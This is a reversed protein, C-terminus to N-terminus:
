RILNIAGKKIEKKQDFMEIEVVYVYVGSPQAVGRVTGDWGNSQRSTWILEGWQNFINMSYEKYTGFIKLQDNKGDGNPTFSNPIFIEMISTTKGTFSASVIDLCSSGGLAKVTLIVSTNPTLNSVLTSLGSSGSTPIIFPGNNISVQYGLASAIPTWKFELSYPTADNLSIIPKISSVPTRNIVNITDTLKCNTAYTVTVSYSGTQTVEFIPKTSGDQWIFSNGGNFNKTSLVLSPGCFSTDPGLGYSYGPTNIFNWGTNNSVNSSNRGAFFNAGGLAGNDRLELFDSTVNGSKKSIFSQVGNQSSQIKIPFCGNGLAILEGLVSQTSNAALTYQYGPSLYLTDFINDGLITASNYFNARKMKCGSNLIAFGYTSFSNITDNIFGNIFMNGKVIVSDYKNKGGGLIWLNQQVTLKSFTSNNSEFSAEGSIFEINNYKLPAGKHLFMYSNRSDWGNLIIESGAASFQMNTGDVIWRGIDIQLRSNELIFTRNTTYDSFFQKVQIVKGNSNLKGAILSLQDTTKLSDQLVWEGGSGSFTIPSTLQLNATVIKNGLSTSKFFLEGTANYKMDKILTMSGYVRLGYEGTIAPSFRAGVWSINKCNANEINLTVTQNALNFSNSDFFVNDNAGPICNGPVGGSSLAWRLTDSWNGTGGVWYFNRSITNDFLWGSNNGLDSSNNATFVAGGTVLIDQINLYSVNVTGSSKKLTARTGSTASELTINQNCDANTFITQNITQIAGAGLSYVSGRNLSIINYTNDGLLKANSNLIATGIRNGGNLIIPFTSKLYVISDKSIETNPFMTSRILLTDIQGSSINSSIPSDFEIKNFKLNTMGLGTLASNYFRLNFYKAAEIHQFVCTFRNDTRSLNIQSRDSNLQLNQGNVNWNVEWYNISTNEVEIVSNSITLIRTNPITSYFNSCKLFKSNTNLHGNILYIFKTSTLSDQLQWEGGNGNFYIDGKILHGATTISNGITTSQFYITGSLDLNMLPFLKVSGYVRIDNKGLFVPNNVVGEWSMNKFSIIPLDATVTQGTQNFSKSDFFINDNLSPLCNISLGGSINSWHTVDSWNGTGGIWYFNRAQRAQINLGTNNGLDISNSANISASYDFKIDKFATYNLQSPLVLPKIIAQKGYTSSEIIIDRTCTGDAIFSKLVTQVKADEIINLSGPSFQLSDFQNSGNIRSNGLFIAKGILCGGSVVGNIRTIYVGITDSNPGYDDMGNNFILSDIKNKQSGSFGIGAVTNYIIKKFQCGTSIFNKSLSEFFPNSVKEFIVNTYSIGKNKHSFGNHDKIIITSNVTSSVLNDGNVQWVPSGGLGKCVITSNAITLKRNSNLPSQFGGCDIYQANSNFHGNNLEVTASTKLSDQLVWEGGIGNFKLNSFFQRGNSLITKSSSQAEFIIDGSYEIKLEESLVLNGYINIQNTGKLTPGFKVGAWSMNNCSASLNITVVQNTITFSNADFFVNDTPTPIQLHKVSGGSTTAWHSIDSWDGSNGVWYYDAAFLQCLSSILFIKLLIYKKM